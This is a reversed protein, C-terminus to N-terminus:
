RALQQLREALSDRGALRAFDAAMLGQENRIKSSAGHKLLLRLSDESGYQAAMMLPTSGNPSLADVAAGHELLLGVVKPDPGTAAYHLPSWGPLNVQAGHALLLKCTALDGKIAAIMLPSEGAQNLANVDIQPQALLLKAVKASQERIAVTLAPQGKADRANAEIGRQLLAGVEGVNDNRIAIFFDVQPSANCVSCGLLVILYFAKNLYKM